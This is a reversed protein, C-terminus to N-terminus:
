MREDFKNKKEEDALIFVSLPPSSFQCIRTFLKELQNILVILCLAARKLNTNVATIYTIVAQCKSIINRIQLMMVENAFWYRDCLSVAEHEGFFALQKNFTVKLTRRSRLSIKIEGACRDM